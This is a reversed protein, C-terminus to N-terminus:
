EKQYTIRDIVYLYKNALTLLCEILVLYYIGLAKCAMRDRNQQQLTSAAM